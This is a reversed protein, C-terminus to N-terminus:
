SKSSRARELVKPCTCCSSTTQQETRYFFYTVNNLM